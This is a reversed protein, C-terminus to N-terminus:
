YNGLNIIRVLSINIISVLREPELFDFLEWLFTFGGKIRVGYDFKNPPLTGKVLWIKCLAYSASLRCDKIFLIFVALVEYFDWFFFGKSGSFSGTAYLKLPELLPIVELDIITLFFSRLFTISSLLLRDFACEFIVSYALLLDSDAVLLSLLFM